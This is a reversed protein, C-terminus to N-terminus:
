IPRTTPERPRMKLTVKHVLAVIPEVVKSNLSTTSNMGCRGQMTRKRNLAREISTRGSSSVAEIIQITSDMTGVHVRLSLVSTLRTWAKTSMTVTSEVLVLVHVKVALTCITSSLAVSVWKSM